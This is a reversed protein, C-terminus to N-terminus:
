RPCRPRASARWRSGSSARSAGCIRGARREASSGQRPGLRPFRRDGPACSSAPPHRRAEAARGVARGGLAPRRARSVRAGVGGVRRTRRRGGLLAPLARDRSGLEGAGAGWAGTAAPRAGAACARRRAARRAARAPGIPAHEVLQSCVAIWPEYPVALEESCAGWLVAFGEGHAGHAALSALRSKGIGPEGSVLMVRRAGARAASRSREM